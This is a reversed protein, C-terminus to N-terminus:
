EYYDASFYWRDGTYGPAPSDVRSFLDKNAWLLSRARLAAANMSRWDLKELEKYRVHLLYKASRATNIEGSQALALLYPVSEDGLGEFLAIDAQQSPAARHREANVRAIMADPVSFNLALFMVAAAAVVAREIQLRKCFRGALLVSFVVTLLLMFWSTYVRLPTLGYANIYMMMKSFASAILTLTLATLLSVSAKVATSDSCRSYIAALVLLLNIAAVATLEFFGRRAYASYVTDTPLRGWVASFLYNFQIALFCLYIVCCVVIVTVAVTSDLPFGKRREEQPEPKACGRRRATYLASFIFIALICGILLDAFVRWTTQGIGGVVSVVATEFAQDASVLLLLVVAAVPVSAAVGLLVKRWETGKEIKKRSAITRFVADASVCPACIASQLVDRFFGKGGRGFMAGIHLSLFLYVGILNLVSLTRNSFLGICCLLLVTVAGFPWGASLRFRADQAGYWIAAGYFAATLLIVSFGPHRPLFLLERVLVGLAVALFVLLCEKRDAEFQPRPKPVPPAWPYNTQYEQARPIRDAAAVQQQKDAGPATQEAGSAPGVSSNSFNDNMPVVREITVILPLLM